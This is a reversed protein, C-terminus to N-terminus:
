AGKRAQVGGDVHEDALRARCAPPIPDSIEWALGCPYCHLMGAEFRDAVALCVLDVDPDARTYEAARNM